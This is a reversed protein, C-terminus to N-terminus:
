VLLLRLLSVAALSAGVGYLAPWGPLAFPAGAWALAWNLVLAAASGIAVGRLQGRKEFKSYADNLMLASLM